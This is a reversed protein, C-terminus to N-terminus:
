RVIRRLLQAVESRREIQPLHGTRPFVHLAIM